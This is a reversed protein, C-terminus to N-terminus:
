DKGSFIKYTQLLDQKRRRDELRELGLEICKEEYTVGTLGSIM